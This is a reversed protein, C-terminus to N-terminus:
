ITERGPQGENEIKVSPTSIQTSINAEILKQSFVGSSLLTVSIDELEFM